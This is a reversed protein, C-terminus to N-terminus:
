QYPCAGVESDLKGRTRRVRWFRLAFGRFRDRHIISHRCCSDRDLLTLFQTSNRRSWSSRRGLLLRRRRRPRRRRCRPGGGAPHIFRLLHVGRVAALLAVGAYVIVVVVVNVAASALVPTAIAVAIGFHVM